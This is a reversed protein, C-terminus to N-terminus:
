TSLKIRAWDITFSCTAPSTANIYAGRQLHLRDEVEYIFKSRHPKGRPRVQTLLRPHPRHSHYMNSLFRREPKCSLVDSGQTWTHRRHTEGLAAHSKDVLTKHHNDYWMPSLGTQNIEFLTDEMATSEQHPPQNGFGPGGTLSISLDAYSSRANMQQFTYSLGTRFQGEMDENYYALPGMWMPVPQNNWPNATPQQPM